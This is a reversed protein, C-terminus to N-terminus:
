ADGTKKVISTGAIYGGTWANHPFVFVLAPKLGERRVNFIFYEILNENNNFFLCRNNYSKCSFQIRRHGMLMLFRSCSWRCSTLYVKLVNQTWSRYIVEGAFLLNPQKKREVNNLSIKLLLGSIRINEDIMLVLIPSLHKWFRIRCKLLFLHLIFPVTDACKYVPVTNDM